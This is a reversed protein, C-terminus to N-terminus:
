AKDQQIATPMKINVITGSTIISPKDMRLAQFTADLLPREKTTKESNSAWSTINKPIGRCSTRDKTSFPNYRLWGSMRWYELLTLYEQGFTMWFRAKSLLFISVLNWAGRSLTFLVWTRWYQPLSPQYPCRPIEKQRGRFISWTAHNWATLRRTLTPPLHEGHDGGNCDVIDLFHIEDFSTQSCTSYIQTQGPDFWLRIPGYYESEASTIAWEMNLSVVDKAWLQSNLMPTNYVPM